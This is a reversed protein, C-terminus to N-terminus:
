EKRAIYIIKNDQNDNAQPLLKGKKIGFSGLLKFKNKELLSKIEDYSYYRESFTSDVRSYKSEENYNYFNVIKSKSIGNKFTSEWIFFNNNIEGCSTENYITEFAHLTNVDFMIIGNYELVEYSKKLCDDLQSVNTLHNVVDDVSIVLDFMLPTNFNSIDSNILSAKYNKLKNKAISLMEKSIDVGTVEYGKKLLQLMCNGTGCGLDLIRKGKFNFQKAIQLYYDLFIEYNDTSKYDDYHKSFIDYNEM